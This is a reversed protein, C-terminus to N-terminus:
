RFEGFARVGESERPLFDQVQLPGCFLEPFDVTLVAGWRKNAMRLTETERKELAIKQALM